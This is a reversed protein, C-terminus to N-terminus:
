CPLFLGCSLNGMVTDKQTRQVEHAIQGLWFLSAVHGGKEDKLVINKGQMRGPRNLAMSRFFCILAPLPCASSFVTLPPVSMTVVWSPCLRCRPSSRRDRWAPPLPSLQQGPPWKFPDPGNVTARSKRTASFDRAYIPILIQAHEFDSNVTAAYKMRLRIWDCGCSRPAACRRRPERLVGTM